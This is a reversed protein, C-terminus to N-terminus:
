AQNAQDVLRRATDEHRHLVPLLETLLRKLREDSTSDRAAELEAIDKEHAALMKKAFAGDFAAGSPLTDMAHAVTVDALDVQEDKALQAVKKDAAAHDKALMTGFSKVSKSRGHEIAMHGMAIELQNSRHLQALVDATTPPDAALAAGSGLASVAFMILVKVLHRM